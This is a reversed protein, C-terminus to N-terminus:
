GNASGAVPLSFRVTAGSRDSNVELRGGHSEVISRCLSLGVGLGEAKTSSFLPFEGKSFDAPFGPGTDRVEFGIADGDMRFVRITIEGRGDGTESIAEVSNRILNLLVQEVQLLDVMVTPLADGVETRITIPHRGLSPRCIELVDSLIRDVKSPARGSQDLRILARLRRVVESAREVQAVAKGATEIANNDQAKSRLSDAVLRTYTGAAMLPQNIEHAVAAALEGVSGLRAVRALSEQHVRLQSETRRHETVLAGAVLGTMTLVLMVAQFATVDVNGKSIFQLGVILGIQTLLIGISVAELGGRVALWVIPLFLMYFLQFHHSEAYLFVLALAVMIAAIQATTEISPKLFLGRTLAILGFPCVVAIGIMDGVWYQMAAKAFEGPPLIGGLVLTGAYSASVFAASVAAVALLVILDRMSSLAPNFRAGARVLFALGAAYGIGVIAVTVLEITWSFPLQRVLSDALLPAIFLLPIFRLGFLLVLVFSLGTQPNWPTIGFTAFPHVFSIWDLAVYGILYAFGISPLPLSFVRPYAMPTSQRALSLSDM